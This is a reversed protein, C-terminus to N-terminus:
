KFKGPFQERLARDLASVSSGSSLPIWLDVTEGDVVISLRFASRWFSPGRSLNIGSIANRQFSRQQSPTNGFFTLYTEDIRVLPTKRLYFGGRKLILAVFMVIGILGLSVVLTFTFDDGKTHFLPMLSASLSASLLAIVAALSNRPRPIDM